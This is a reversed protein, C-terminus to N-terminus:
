GSAAILDFLRGEELYPDKLLVFGGQKQLYQATRQRYNIKKVM